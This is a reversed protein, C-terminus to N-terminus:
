LLLYTQLLVDYFLHLVVILSTYTPAAQITPRWVNILLLRSDVHFSRPANASGLDVNVARIWWAPIEEM